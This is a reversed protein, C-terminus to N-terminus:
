KLVEPVNYIVKNNQKKVFITWKIRNKEIVRKVTQQIAQKSVKLEKAAITLSKNLNYINNLVIFQYPTLKTQNNQIFHRMTSYEALTTLAAYLEYKARAQDHYGLEIAITLFDKQEYLYAELTRKRRPKLVDWAVKLDKGLLTGMIVTNDPEPAINELNDRYELQPEESKDRQLFDNVEACASKCTTAIPCGGCNSIFLEGNVIKHTKALEDLYPKATVSKHPLPRGLCQKGFCVLRKPCEDMSQGYAAMTERRIDRLVDERVDSAIAM